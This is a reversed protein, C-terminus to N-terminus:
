QLSWVVNVTVTVPQKGARIPLAASKLTGALGASSAYDPDPPSAETRTEKVNLVRGLQRGALTADQMAAAKANAFANARAADLLQANDTIDLSLGGITVHNGAATAAAALVKGVNALPHIKLTLTEDSRYGDVNGHNDYSKDLSLDSTQVDGGAVGRARLAQIVQRTESSENDLAGQVDAAKAGVDLTTTLTDPVGQVVGAGSVTISGAAPSDARATGPDSRDHALWVSLTLVVLVAVAIALLRNPTRESHSLPM